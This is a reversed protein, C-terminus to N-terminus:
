TQNQLAQYNYPAVIKLGRSNPHDADLLPKLIVRTVIGFNGPSGGLVAFFLDVDVPTTSDRMVTRKKQGQAEATWIEFGAVNDSLLGFSRCMQGYGGSQVHGGLHVHSCEGMPLFMNNQNLLKALDMLKHSVGAILYGPKSTLDFDFFAESLDLQINRGSTSSAGSYQHGGTRVAIAVDAQIAYTIALQIDSDATGPQLYVIADPAMDGTVSPDYTSTGYQYAHIQYNADGRKFTTGQFDPLSM